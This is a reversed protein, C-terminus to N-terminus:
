KGEAEHIQLQTTLLAIGDSPSVAHGELGPWKEFGWEANNEQLEGFTM